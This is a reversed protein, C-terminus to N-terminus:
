FLKPNMIKNAHLLFFFSLILSDDEEDDEEDDELAASSTEGFSIGSSTVSYKSKSGHRLVM